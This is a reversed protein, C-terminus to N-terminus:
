LIYEQYGKFIKRGIPASWSFNTNKGFFDEIAWELDRFGLLHRFMVTSSFRPNIEFIYPLNNKKSIRLQINISGILDLKKAMTILTSNIKDNEVVEGYQTYGGLNSSLERKFTITKIVGEKSRFLGCTFEDGEIFEQLIMGTKPFSKKKLELASELFIIEKGGAGSNSKLVAPFIFSDLNNSGKYEITKPFPLNEKQLFKNTEFKRLGVGLGYNNIILVPAPFVIKNLHYQELEKEAIPIVLDVNYEKVLKNIFQSYDRSDFRPSKIFSDFIIRSPTKINIDCGILRRCLESNKLIKGISQGIDGASGTVLITYM